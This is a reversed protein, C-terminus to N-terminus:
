YDFVNSVVKFINEEKIKNNIRKDIERLVWKDYHNINTPIYLKVKRVGIFDEIRKFIGNITFIDRSFL